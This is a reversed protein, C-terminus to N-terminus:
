EPAAVANRDGCESDSGFRYYKIVPTWHRRVYRSISSSLNNKLPTFNPPRAPPQSSEFRQPPNSQDEPLLDEPYPFAM